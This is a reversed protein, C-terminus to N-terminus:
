IPTRYNHDTHADHRAAEKATLLEQQAASERAHLGQLRAELNRMQLTKDRLQQEAEQMLVM